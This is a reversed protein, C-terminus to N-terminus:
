LSCDQYKSVGLFTGMQHFHCGGIPSIQADGSGYANIKFLVISFIGCVHYREDLMQLNNKKDFRHEQFLFPNHLFIILPADM